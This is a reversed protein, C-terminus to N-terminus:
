PAMFGVERLLAKLENVETELETLTAGSTDANADPQNVPTTGWFGMKDAAEKCIKFGSGDSTTAYDIDNYDGLLLDGTGSPRLSINNSSVISSFTQQSPWYNAGNLLTDNLLSSRAYTAGSGGGGKKYVAVLDDDTSTGFTLAWAMLGRTYANNQITTTSALPAFPGVRFYSGDALAMSSDAPVTATPNLTKPLGVVNASISVVDVLPTGAVFAGMYNNVVKLINNAEVQIPPTDEVSFGNFFCDEVKLVGTANNQRIASTLTNGSHMEFNCGKVSGQQGAWYILNTGATVSPGFDCGLFNVGRGDDVYVGYVENLNFVCGIFNVVNINGDLYVGTNGENFKCSTFVSQDIDEAWFDTSWQYMNVNRFTVRAMNSANPGLKIGIGTGAFGDFGIDSISLGDCDGTTAVVLGNSSSTAQQIITQAEGAGYIVRGGSSIAYDLQSTIKYVGKPIFLPMGASISADIASQLASTDDTSGNGTAGYDKANIVLDGKAVLAADILTKNTTGTTYLNDAILADQAANTASLAEIDATLNTVSVLNTPAVGSDLLMGDSYVMVNNNTALGNVQIGPPTVIQAGYSIGAIMILGIIKKM